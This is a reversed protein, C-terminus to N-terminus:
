PAVLAVMPGAKSDDGADYVVLDVRETGRV